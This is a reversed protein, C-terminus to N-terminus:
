PRKIQILYPNAYIGLQRIALEAELLLPSTIPLLANANLVGSYLLARSTFNVCGYGIGYQLDDINLLNRGNNLNHTMARLIKGNVNNILLQIQSAPLINTQIGDNIAVSVSADTPCNALVGLIEKVIM